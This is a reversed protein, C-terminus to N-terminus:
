QKGRKGKLTELLQRQKEIEKVQDAQDKINQEIDAEIKRKKKQLDDAEDKLNKDKKEAKRIADDQDIIQQELDYAAVTTRLNDLFDKGNDYVKADVSDAVFADNGKSILLTVTSNEKDKRSARETSFFLDYSDPGLEEMRVGKFVMYGKSSSSKYGMKRFKDELANEITKVPFPVENILAPRSQKQYDASGKKTQAMLPSIAFAFFLISICFKM